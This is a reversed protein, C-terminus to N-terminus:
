ASQVVRQVVRPVRSETSQVIWVRSERNGERWDANGERSARREWNEARGLWRAETQVGRERSEKSKAGREASKEEFREANRSGWLGSDGASERM